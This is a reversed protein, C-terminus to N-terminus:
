PLLMGDQDNMEQSGIIYLDIRGSEISKVVVLGDIVFRGDGVQVLISTLRSLIHAPQNTHEWM